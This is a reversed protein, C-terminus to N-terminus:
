AAKKEPDAVTGEGRADLHLKAEGAIWCSIEAANTMLLSAKWFPLLFQDAKPLGLMHCLADDLHHDAPTM